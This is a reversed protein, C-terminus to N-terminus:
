CEDNCRHRDTMYGKGGAVYSYPVGTVVMHVYHEGDRSAWFTDGVQKENLKAKAKEAVMEALIGEESKIPVTITGALDPYEDPYKDKLQARAAVRAFASPSSSLLSELDSRSTNINFALKLQVGVDPYDVYSHLFDSDLSADIAKSIAEAQLFQEAISELTKSTKIGSVTPVLTDKASETAFRGGKSRTRNKSIRSLRDRSAQTLTRHTPNKAM